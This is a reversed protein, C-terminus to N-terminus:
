VECIWIRFRAYGWWEYRSIRMAIRWIQFEYCSPGRFFIFIM